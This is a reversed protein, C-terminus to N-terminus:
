AIPAGRGGSLDLQKIKAGNRAALLADIPRRVFEYRRHELLSSGLRISHLTEPRARRRDPDGLRLALRRGSLDLEDAVRSL